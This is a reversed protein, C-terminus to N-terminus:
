AGRRAKQCAERALTDARENGEHGNHGRVWKWELRRRSCLDDLREWLDRNKVDGGTSSKWGKRKWGHIWQTMGNKAYQSDTIIQAASGEPIAELARIIAMLEMRNNTTDREHGSLESLAGKPSLITAGWGGPGPNGSCAGDTHLIYQPKAPASSSSM